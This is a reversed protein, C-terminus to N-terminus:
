YRTLSLAKNVIPDSVRGGKNFDSFRAKERMEDTLRIGLQQRPGDATQATIVEINPKEGTAEKFVDQVYKVFASDYYKRMGEGGFKMEDGSVSYRELGKFMGADVVERNELLKSSLEDGIFEPLKEPSVDKKEFVVSGNKLAVIKGPYKNGSASVFPPNYTIRDAVRSLSYRQAQAEGPTWTFYEAGSDLAKDLQKKVTLKSWGEMSKVFPGIPAATTNPIAADLEAGRAVLNNLAERASKVEPSADLADQRRIHYENWAPDRWAKPEPGIAESVRNSVETLNDRAKEIAKENTYYENVWKQYVVPDYFGSKRGSKALDSQAEEVNWAKYPRNAGPPEVNLTQSRSHALYGPYQPFHSSTYVKREDGGAEMLNDLTGRESVTLPMDGLAGNGYKERLQKVYSNYLKMANPMRYLDEGYGEGGRTVYLDGFRSGPGYQVPLGLGGMEEITADIMKSRLEDKQEEIEFQRKWFDEMGQVSKDAESLDFDANLKEDEAKLRNWEEMYPASATPTPKVDERKTPRGGGLTVDETQFRNNKLYDLLEEKSVKPTTSLFVDAGTWRLEEPSVGKRLMALAQQGTMKEMPIARAVEMAKSFWRAPGAEAEDPNMFYNTAGVGAAKAYKGGPGFAIALSATLPDNTAIGEAVDMGAAIPATFPNFYFPVTKFDYAGQAMGQLGEAVDYPATGMSYEGGLLPMDIKMERRPRDGVHTMQQIDQPQKGVTERLTEYEAIDRDPIAYREMLADYTAPDNVAKAAVSQPTVDSRAPNPGPNTPPIINGQADYKNGKADEMLVPTSGGVDKAIRIADDIDDDNVEGGSAYGLKWTVDNEPFLQDIYPHDQTEWPRIGRLNEESWNMRSQVNRAETEGAYQHYAETPTLMKPTPAYLPINRSSVSKRLDEVQKLMPFMNEIRENYEKNLANYAAEKERDSMDSADIEKDRPSYEATYLDNAENQQKKFDMSSRLSMLERMEPDNKVAEEYRKVAPNVRGASQAQINTGPAFGEKNQIAHQIEHLLVSKQSAGSSLLNENLEIRPDTVAGWSPAFRPFYMGGYSSTSPMTRVDMDKFQPYAAFFKPHQLYDGLKASKVPLITPVSLDLQLANSNVTTGIDPIEYRWRGDAGRFWGTNDWIEDPSAGKSEMKMADRIAPKDATLSKVGGFVRLSNDPAPVVSSAGGITSAANFSRGVASELPRGTEDFLAQKGTIVDGPFTVADKGAEYAGRAIDSIGVEGEGGLATPLISRATRIANEAADGAWDSWSQDDYTKEELLRKASAIEEAYPDVEGGNDKAIRGGTDKQGRTFKEPNFIPTGIDSQRKFWAADYGAKKAAKAARDAYQLMNEDKRWRGAVKNWDATGEYLIKADPNATIREIESGYLKAADPNDAAFLYSDWEPAGTVIREISGPNTGRYFEVPPSIPLGKLNRITRTKPAAKEGAGMVLKLAQEVIDSKGAM